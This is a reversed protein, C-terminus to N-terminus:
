QRRRRLRSGLLSVFLHAEPLKLAWASVIYLVAWVPILALAWKGLGLHISGLCAGAVGLSLLLSCVVTRGIRPGRGTKRRMLLALIIVNLYGAASVAVALGVHAYHQMLGYGLTVNCLMSVFATIMPIRTNERAYFASVYPRVLAVAPLGAGYAVLAAVTATVDHGTFAGRRFLLEIIPHGLAILGAASPLSIFTTLGLSTDLAETFDENMGAAALRALSPLAATSVAVGFVGLPFQVLRDAYYLYSVSGTPLFSALLTSLLINIQYVAAGIVTPLMLRAVRGVGPHRWSWEGRWRFGRSYMAPQQMTWQLVGAALVGWALAVAVNGGCYYGILAASILAVNLACPGLAPTLFHGMSNLIGMCLAMASVLLIYPFCIRVLRVTLDFQEPSDLFGPAILGSLPRALLVALLCIGGVVVFLWMQVSRALAFAAEEGHEERLRTFVPIFAMTLSGEAFLSRLLNPLRFAVFFADAMWGAGLAFATVLDRVFGLGRSLLTALGVVAANKAITRSHTSM